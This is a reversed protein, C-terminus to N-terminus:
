AHIRRTGHGNGSNNKQLTRMQHTLHLIQMMLKHSEKEEEYIEAINSEVESLNKTNRNVKIQIFIALYLAELCFVTALTLLTLNTTIGLYRLLFVGSIILTHLVLSFPSGMLETLKFSMKELFTLRHNM